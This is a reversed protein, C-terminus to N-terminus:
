TNWIRPECVTKGIIAERLHRWLQIFYEKAHEAQYGLFRCILVDEIRTMGAISDSRLAVKKRLTEM